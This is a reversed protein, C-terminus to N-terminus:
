SGFSAFIFIINLENKTELAKQPWKEFQKRTSFDDFKHLSRLLILVIFDINQWMM